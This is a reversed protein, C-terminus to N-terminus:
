LFECWDIKDSVSGYDFRSDIYLEVITIQMGIYYIHHYGHCSAFRLTFITNNLNRWPLSQGLRLDQKLEAFGSGCDAISWMFLM